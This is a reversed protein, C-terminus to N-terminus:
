STDQQEKIYIDRVADALLGWESALGTKALEESEEEESMTMSASSMADRLTRIHEIM